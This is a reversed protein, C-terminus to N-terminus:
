IAGRALIPTLHSAPCPGLFCGCSANANRDRLVKLSHRLTLLPTKGAPLPMRSVGEVRVNRARVTKGRSAALARRVSHLGSGREDLPSLHPQQPRSPARSALRPHWGLGQPSAPTLRAGVCVSTEVVAVALAKAFRPLFACRRTPAAHCRYRALAPFHEPFQKFALASVAVGKRGPVIVDNWHGTTTAGGGVVDHGGARRAVTGLAISVNLLPNGLGAPGEVIPYNIAHKQGVDSTADTWQIKTGDSM